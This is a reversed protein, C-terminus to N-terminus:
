EINEILEGSRDGHYGAENIAMLRIKTLYYAILMNVSDRKQISLEKRKDTDNENLIEVCLRLTEAEYYQQKKELEKIEQM